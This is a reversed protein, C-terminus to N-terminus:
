RAREAFWDAMRDFAKPIVLSQRGLSRCTDSCWGFLTRRAATM